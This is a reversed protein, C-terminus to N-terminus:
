QEKPRAEPYLCSLNLNGPGNQWPMWDDWCAGMASSMAITTGYNPEEAPEEPNPEDIRDTVKITATFPGNAQEGNTFYYVFTDTGVFGPNPTYTFSGDGNLTLKGYRTKGELMTKWGDHDTGAQVGDFVTVTLTRDKGVTYGKGPQEGPGGGNPDKVTVTVTVVAHTTRGDSDIVAYDFEDTGVFGKEPTYVVIGDKTVTLTGFAPKGYEFKLPKGTTYADNALVDITVPTDVKTEVRDDVAAPPRDPLLIRVTVTATATNGASDTVTYTFVDTFFRGTATELAKEDPTYEIRNGPFGGTSGNKPTGYDSVYLGDAGSDNALVDIIVQQGYEVTIVDDEATPPQEGGYVVITVTVDVTHTGDSLQYTFSDKELSDTKPTYTFTGDANFVVSGSWPDTWGVVSLPDNNPDYAFTTPDLTVSENVPIHTVIDAVIPPVNTELVAILVHGTSTAGFADTVVYSFGDRGTFNADPTYVFAGDPEITVTGHLPANAVEVTVVSPDSDADNALLGDKASVELPTNGSTTYFDDNAHPPRNQYDIVITGVAQQGYIDSVTYSLTVTGVFAPDPTFTLMGESDITAVGSGEPPETLEVLGSLLNGSSDFRRVDFLAKNGRITTVHIDSAGLGPAAVTITVKTTATDGHPDTITYEFSDVGVFRPAPTYTFLGTNDITVTGYTPQTHDTVVFSEGDPDADNYTVWDTLETDAWVTFEDPVATPPRNPVLVAISVPATTVVGNQDLVSYSFEDPGSYGANPTYTFVGDDTVVVTGNAPQTHSEYSISDGENVVDNALLDGSVPTDVWTTYIDNRAGAKEGELPTETWVATAALNSERRTWALITWLLPQTAPAAPGPLVLPALPALVAAVMSQEAPAVEPEVVTTTTFSSTAVEDADASIQVRTDPEDVPASRVIQTNNLTSVPPNTPGSVTPQSPSDNQQVAAKTASPASEAAGSTDDHEVPGEEVEEEDDKTGSGNTASGSTLAGGSSSFNMEPVTPRGPGPGPGPSQASEPDTPDAPGASGVSSSPTEPGETGTTGSTGTSGAGGPSGSNDSGSASSTGESSSEADDDARADGAGYGTAVAFGIGLAVALAGIRGIYRAYGAPAAAPAGVRFEPHLAHPRSGDIRHRGMTRSAHTSAPAHM